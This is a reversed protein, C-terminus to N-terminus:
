DGEDPGVDAATGAQWEIRKWVKLWDRAIDRQADALGMAGSCVQRHLYNEVRDKEHFGPVPEAAEPWLNAITNDGGLELPILHDVEFSGRPQPYSLGYEAFAQRHAEPSVRRREQTSHLCVITMDMTM